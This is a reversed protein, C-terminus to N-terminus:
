HSFSYYGGTTFRDVEGDMHTPAIGGVVNELDDPGLPKEPAANRRGRRQVPKAAARKTETVRKKETM